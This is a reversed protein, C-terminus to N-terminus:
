LIQGAIFIYKLNGAYKFGIQNSQLNHPMTPSLSGLSWPYIMVYLYRMPVLEAIDRNCGPKVVGEVSYVM